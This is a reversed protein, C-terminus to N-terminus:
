IHRFIKWDAYFTGFPLVSALVGLVTQLNNIKGASRAWCVSYVYWLFLIGHAMGVDRTAHEIGGWYKLPMAIGLLVLFSIGELIGAWHLHFKVDGLKKLM